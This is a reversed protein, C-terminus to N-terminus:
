SATLFYLGTVFVADFLWHAMVAGALNHTRLRVFAFILGGAFLGAVALSTALVIQGPSTFNTVALTQAQVAVHWAVFIASTVLTARWPTLRRILLGLVLGRFALEEPIATLLPLGVLAHALVASTAAGQLPQYTIPTGLRAGLALALLVMAALGLGIGAGILTSRLLNTRGIGAEAWTLECWRSSVIVILLTGATEAITAWSVTVVNPGEALGTANGFLILITAIVAVRWGWRTPM